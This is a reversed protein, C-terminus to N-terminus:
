IKVEVRKRKGIDSRGVSRGFVLHGISTEQVIHLKRDRQIEKTEMEKQKAKKKKWPTGSNKANIFLLSSPCFVIQATESNNKANQLTLSRAAFTCSVNDSADEITTTTTSLICLSFASPIDRAGVTARNQRTKVQKTKSTNSKSM